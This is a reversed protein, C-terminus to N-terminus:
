SLDAPVKITGYEIDRRTDLEFYAMMEPWTIHRIDVCSPERKRKLRSRRSEIYTRSARCDSCYLSYRLRRTTYNYKFKFNDSRQTVQCESCTRCSIDLQPDDLSPDQVGGQESSSDDSFDDDFEPQSSHGETYVKDCLAQSNSM